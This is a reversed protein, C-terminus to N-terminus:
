WEGILRVRQDLDAPLEPPQAAAPEADHLLKGNVLRRIIEAAAIRQPQQPKRKAPHVAAFRM